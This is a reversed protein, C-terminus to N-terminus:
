SSGRVGASWTGATWFSARCKGATTVERTIASLICPYRHLAESVYLTTSLSDNM